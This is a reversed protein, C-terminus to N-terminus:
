STGKQGNRPSLRSLRGKQQTPAPRRQTLSPSSPRSRTGVPRTMGVGAPRTMGTVPVTVPRARLTLTRTM